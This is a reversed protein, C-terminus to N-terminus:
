LKVIECLVPNECMKHYVKKLFRKLHVWKQPTWWFPKGNLNEPPCIYCPLHSTSLDPISNWIRKFRVLFSSPLQLGFRWVKSFRILLYRVATSWVTVYRSLYFYQNLFSQLIQDNSQMPGFKLYPKWILLIESINLNECSILFLIQFWNLHGIKVVCYKFYINLYLKWMIQFVNLDSKLTLHVPHSIYKPRIEVHASSTFCIWWM